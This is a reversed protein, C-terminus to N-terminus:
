DGSNWAGFCQATWMGKYGDISVTNLCPGGPVPFGDLSFESYYIQPDGSELALKCKFTAHGTKGNSYQTWSTGEYAWDPDYGYVGCFGDEDLRFAPGIYDGNAQATSVFLVFFSVLFLKIAKM